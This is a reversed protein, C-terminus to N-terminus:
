GHTEEITLAGMHLTAALLRPQVTNICCHVAQLVTILCAVSVHCLFQRELVAFFANSKM